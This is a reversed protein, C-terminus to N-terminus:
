PNESKAPPRQPDTMSIALKVLKKVTRPDPMGGAMGCIARVTTRLDATDLTRKRSAPNNTPGETANYEEVLRNCENILAGVIKLLSTKVRPDPNADDNLDDFARRLAAHEDQLKKAEASGSEAAMELECVRARLDTNEGELKKAKASGSEANSELERVRARLCALELDCDSLAELEVRRIEIAADRGSKARREQADPPAPVSPTPHTLVWASWGHGSFEQKLLYEVWQVRENAKM